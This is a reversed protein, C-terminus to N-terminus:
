RHTEAPLPLPAHQTGLQEVAALRFEDPLGAEEYRIEDVPETRGWGAYLRDPCNFVLGPSDGVNRYAHIVGPPILIALPRSEGCALTEHRLYTTSDPRNDWLEVLFEGPGLFAFCDTQSRHEHPGRQVGPLTQSVYAMHPRCHAPLEDIRFLEILWGRADVHRALEHALVGAFM